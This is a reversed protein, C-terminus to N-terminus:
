GRILVVSRLIAAKVKLPRLLGIISSARLPHDANSPNSLVVFYLASVVVM